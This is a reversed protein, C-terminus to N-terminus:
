EKNITDEADPETTQKGESREPTILYTNSITNSNPNTSNLNHSPINIPSLRNNIPNKIQNLKKKLSALLDQRFNGPLENFSDVTNHIQTLRFNFTNTKEKPETLRYEAMANDIQKDILLSLHRDQGENKLAEAYILRSIRAGNIKRLKHIYELLGQRDNTGADSILGSFEARKKCVILKKQDKRLVGKAYPCKKNLSCYNCFLPMANEDTFNNEIAKEATINLDTIVESKKETEIKEIDKVKPIFPEQSKEFEQLPNKTEVKQTNRLDLGSMDLPKKIYRDLGGSFRKARKKKPKNLTM